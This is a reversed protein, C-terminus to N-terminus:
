PAYCEVTTDATDHDTDTAHLSFVVDYGGWPHGINFSLDTFGDAGTPPFDPLSSDSAFFQVSGTVTANPVGNGQDDSVVASV